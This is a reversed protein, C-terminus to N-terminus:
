YKAATARVQKYFANLAPDDKTVDEGVSALSSRVKVLDQEPLSILEGGEAKWREVMATESTDSFAATREQLAIGADLVFLSLHASYMDPQPMDVLDLVVKEGPHRCSTVYDVPKNLAIYVLSQEYKVPKDDFSVQDNEPDIKTGLEDIIRGNVTVRGAKIFEEGRRRSCIGAASLFKQLRMLPM